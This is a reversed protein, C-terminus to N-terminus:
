MGATVTARSKPTATARNAAYRAALAPLDVPDRADAARYPRVRAMYWDTGDNAEVMIDCYADWVTPSSNILTYPDLEHAKAYEELATAALPGCVSEYEALVCEMLAELAYYVGDLEDYHIPEYLRRRRHTASIYVAALDAPDAGFGVIPIGKFTRRTTPSV